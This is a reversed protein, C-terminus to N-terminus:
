PSIVSLLFLYFIMRVPSFNADKLKLDTPKKFEPNVQSLSPNPLTLLPKRVPQEPRIDAPEPRETQGPAV